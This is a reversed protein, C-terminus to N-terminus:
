SFSWSARWFIFFYTVRSLARAEAFMQKNRIDFDFLRKLSRYKSIIAAFPDMAHSCYVSHINSKQYKAFFVAPYTIFLHKCACTSKRPYTMKKKKRNEVYTKHCIHPQLKETFDYLYKCAM